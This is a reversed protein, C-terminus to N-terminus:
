GVPIRSPWVLMEIHIGGDTDRTEQRARGLDLRTLRTLPM